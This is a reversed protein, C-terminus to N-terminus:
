PLDGGLTMLERATALLEEMLPLCLLLLEVKGTLEVGVALGNEGSERCIDACIQSLLAIGLARFLMTAHASYESEETLLHLFTLIPTAASLALAGLVVTVAIRVLPLFDAKWQKIISTMSIGLVALM